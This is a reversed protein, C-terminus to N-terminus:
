QFNHRKTTCYYKGTCDIIEGYEMDENCNAIKDIYGSKIRLVSNELITDETVIKGNILTIYKSNM